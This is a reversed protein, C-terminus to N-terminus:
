ALALPTFMRVTQVSLEAVLPQHYSPDPRIRLARKIAVGVVALKRGAKAIAAGATRVLVISEAVLPWAQTGLCPKRAFADTYGVASTTTDAILDTQMSNERRSVFLVTIAAPLTVVLTDPPGVAVTTAPGARFVIGTSLGACSYGVFISLRSYKTKGVFHITGDADSAQIPICSSTQLDVSLRDLQSAKTVMFVKSCNPSGNRSSYIEITDLLQTAYTAIRPACRVIRWLWPQQVQGVAQTHQNEIFISNQGSNVVTNVTTVNREVTAINYSLDAHERSAITQM